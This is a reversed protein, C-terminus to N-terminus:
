RIVRALNRVGHFWQETVDFGKGRNERRLTDLAVRYDDLSVGTASVLAWMDVATITRVNLALFAERLHDATFAKRAAERDERAWDTHPDYATTM